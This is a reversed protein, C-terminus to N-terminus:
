KGMKRKKSGRRSPTKDMVLIGSPSKEVRGSWIRIRYIAWFGMEIEITPQEFGEGVENANAPNVM